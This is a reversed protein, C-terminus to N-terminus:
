ILNTKFLFHTNVNSILSTAVCIKLKASFIKYKSGKQLVLQSDHAKM